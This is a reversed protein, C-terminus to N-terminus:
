AYTRSQDYYLVHVREPIEEARTAIMEALSSFSTRLGKLFPLADLAPTESTPRTGSATM